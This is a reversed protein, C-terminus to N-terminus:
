REQSSCSRSQALLHGPHHLCPKTEAPPPGHFVKNGENVHIKLFHLVRTIYASLKDKATRGAVGKRRVWYVERKNFFLFLVITIYLLNHSALLWPYPHPNMAFTCSPVKSSSPRIRFSPQKLPTVQMCKVFSM